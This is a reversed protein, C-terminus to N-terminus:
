EKKCGIHKGVRRGFVLCDTVAMSGLRAAGHVGGTTEGCAYFGEVVQGNVKLVQGHENIAIGGMTHHIKPKMRMVYYPPKDLSKQQRIPKSFETDEGNKVDENYKYLTAKLDELKAELYFAVEELSDFTKVVGKKLVKQLDWGAFDVAKQDALGICYEGADMMRKSLTGRDILENTFRTWKKRELLIGYPFVVYDGFLSGQGFGKEDISTSPLLQIQDMDVFAISTDLLKELLHNTASLKNTSELGLFEEKYRGILRQNTGFGGSALVLGDRCYLIEKNEKIEQQFKYNKVLKVGKIRGEEFVFDDVLTRTYIPIDLDKCKAELARILDRGSINKPTYCRPVRHGGFIDVRDLYEVGLEEITWRYCDKAESVLVDVLSEKNLYRGAKLIDERMWCKSDDIQHKKQLDTNPAALGGDSIISNGGISAMKELVVVEKKRKRAEIAASLGAFGAGIIIVDVHKKM